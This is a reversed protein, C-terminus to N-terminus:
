REPSDLRQIRVRWAIGPRPDGGMDHIEVVFLIFYRLTVRLLHAWLILPLISGQFNDESKWMNLITRMCM